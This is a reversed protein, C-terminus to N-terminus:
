ILGKDMKVVTEGQNVLKRLLQSDGGTALLLAYTAIDFQLKILRIENILSKIDVAFNDSGKNLIHSELQQLEAETLM